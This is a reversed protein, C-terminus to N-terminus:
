GGWCPIPGVWRRLLSFGQQPRLGASGPCNEGEPHPDGANAQDKGQRALETQAGVQLSPLLQGTGPQFSGEFMEGFSEVGGAYGRRRSRPRPGLEGFLLDLRGRERIKFLGAVLEVTAVQAPLFVDGTLQPHDMGEAAFVPTVVGEVAGLGRS